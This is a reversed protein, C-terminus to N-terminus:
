RASGSRAGYRRTAEARGAAGTGRGGAVMATTSSTGAVPASAPDPERVSAVFSQFEDDSMSALYSSVADTLISLDAAM